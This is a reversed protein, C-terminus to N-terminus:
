LYRSFIRLSENKNRRIYHIGQIYGKPFRLAASPKAHLFPRHYQNWGGSYSCMGRLIVMTIGTDSGILVQVNGSVLAPVARSGGSLLILEVDIRHKRWIEKEATVLFPKAGVGVSSLTAPSEGSIPEALSFM